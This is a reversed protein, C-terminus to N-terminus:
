SECYKKFSFFLKIGCLSNNLKIFGNYFGNKLRKKNLCYTDLFIMLMQTAPHWKNNSSTTTVILDPINEILFVCHMEFINSKFTNTMDSM